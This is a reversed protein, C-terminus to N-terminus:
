MGRTRWSTTTTTTSSKTSTASSIASFTPQSLHVVPTNIVRKYKYWNSLPISLNMLQLLVLLYLLQFLQIVIVNM